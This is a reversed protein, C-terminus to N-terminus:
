LMSIEILDNLHVQNELGKVRILSGDIASIYGNKRKEVTEIM